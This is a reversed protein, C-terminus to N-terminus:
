DKVQRSGVMGSIVFVLGAYGGYVIFGRLYIALDAHKAFLATLLYVGGWFGSGLMALTFGIKDKPPPLFAAMAIAPAVSIQITALVHPDIASAIIFSSYLMTPASFTAWGLTFQVIALVLLAAGRRTVM